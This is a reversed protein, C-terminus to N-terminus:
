SKTPFCIEILQDLDVNRYVVDGVQAQVKGGTFYWRWIKGNEGAFQIYCGERVFSAIAEFLYEDDGLKEGTFELSTINGDDDEDSFWRWAEFMEQLTSAQLLAVEDIFAFHPKHKSSNADHHVIQRIAALALHHHERALFFDSQLMFISYGM